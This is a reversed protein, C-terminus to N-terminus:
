LKIGAMYLREKLQENVDRFSVSANHDTAIKQVALLLGLGSSDMETVAGLHFTLSHFEQQILPFLIQRISTAEKVGIFGTLIVDIQQENNKIEYCM